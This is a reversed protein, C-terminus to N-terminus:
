SLGILNESLYGLWEYVRYLYSRPDDEGLAEVSEADAATNIDLRVALSLRIATLMKLWEDLDIMRVQVARSGSQSDTLATMVVDAQRQRDARQKSHTLRRFEASAVPDGPHSDPFLRAIVPDTRDPPDAEDLEAQWREFPDGSQHDAALEDAELLGALQDVLSELLATEYDSLRMRIVSGVRKFERM